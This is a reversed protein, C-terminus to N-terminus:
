IISAKSSHHQLLSKLGKSQLSTWGTWGLPFWYQINMTLVSASASAGINQGDSAFFQSVPFSGSAPFSQLHSSFPVVSSSITPHCWWSSPCSNSYVRSSPSPCPLRAQQLGHPWLCNSMVSNSFQVSHFYMALFLPFRRKFVLFEEFTKECLLSYPSLFQHVTKAKGGSNSFEILFFFFTFLSYKRFSSSLWCFMERREKEEQLGLAKGKILFFLQPNRPM